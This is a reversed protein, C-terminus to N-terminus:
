SMITVIFLFTFQHAGTHKILQVIGEDAPNLNRRHAPTALAPPQQQQLSPLLV